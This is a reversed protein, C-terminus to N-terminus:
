NDIIWRQAEVCTENFRKRSMVVKKDQAVECNQMSMIWHDISGINQITGDFLKQWKMHWDETCAALFLQQEGDIIRDSTLCLNNHRENVIRFKSDHKWQQSSSNFNCQSLVVNTGEEYYKGIGLVDKTENSRKEVQVVDSTNSRISTNLFLNTEDNSKNQINTYEIVDLCFTNDKESRISAYTSWQQRLTEIKWRQAEICIMNRKLTSMMVEKGQAVECNNTSMILRDKSGINLLTGDFRSQWKMHWDKTCTTVFLHEGGEITGLCLNNQKNVIRYQSDHEWQQSPLTSDCKGLIVRTGKREYEDTSTSDSIDLCYTSDKSIRIFAYDSWQQHLSTVIEWKQSVDCTTNYSDVRLDVGITSNCGDITMYKQQHYNYLRGDSELSWEQGNGEGCTSPLIEEDLNTTFCEGINQIRGYEDHEWLQSWHLGDCRRLTLKTSKQYEMDICDFPYVLSKIQKYGHWQARPRSVAKYQPFANEENFEMKFIARQFMKEGEGKISLQVISDNLL